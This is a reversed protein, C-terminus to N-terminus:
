VRTSLLRVEEYATQTASEGLAIDNREKWVAKGDEGETMHYFFV